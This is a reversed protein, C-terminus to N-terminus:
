APESSTPDPRMGPWLQQNDTPNPYLGKISYLTTMYLPITFLEVDIASQVLEQLVVQDQALMSADRYHTNTM